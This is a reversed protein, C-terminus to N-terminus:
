LHGGYVLLLTVLGVALAVVLLLGLWTGRGIGSPPESFDIPMENLAQQLPVSQMNSVPRAKPASPKAPKTPKVSKESLPTHNKISAWQSLGRGAPAPLPVHGPLGEMLCWFCGDNFHWHGKDQDCPLLHLQLPDNSYPLLASLWTAADAPEGGRFTSRFMSLWPKPWWRHISRQSNRQGEGELVVFDQSSPPPKGAYWPIVTASLDNNLLRHLLLALQYRQLRLRSDASPAASTELWGGALAATGNDSQAASYIPWGPALLVKAKGIDLLLADAMLDHIVCGEQELLQVLECLSVAVKIRTKFDGRVDNAERYAGSLWDYLSLLPGSVECNWRYGKENGGKDRLVASPVFLGCAALDAKRKYKFGAMLKQNAHIQAPDVAKNLLVALGNPDYQLKYLNVNPAQYLPPQILSVAQSKKLRTLVMDNM